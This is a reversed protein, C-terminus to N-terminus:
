HVFQLLLGPLHFVPCIKRQGTPDPWIGQVEAPRLPPQGALALGVEVVNQINESTLRLDNKTDQLQSSLKELQERLKREFKLMRKIPESEKEARSTDLQSRHGLMAEEVQAAIVPGVKGLDERINEVKLAARLLFELDGQLDGPHLLCM